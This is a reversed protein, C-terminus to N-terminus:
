AARPRAGMRERWRLVIIVINLVIHVSPAFPGFHGRPHLTTTVIAGIMIAILLPAGLLATRRNLLAVAGGLEGVGVVHQFWAPFGWFAFAETWFSSYFKGQAAGAMLVVELITVVWLVTRLRRSRTGHVAAVVAPVAM